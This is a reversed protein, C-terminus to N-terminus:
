LRVLLDLPTLGSRRAGGKIQMTRGHERNKREWLPLISLREGGMAPFSWKGNGPVM